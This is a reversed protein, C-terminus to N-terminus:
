NDGWVEWSDDKSQSKKGWISEQSNWDTDDDFMGKKAAEDDVVTNSIPLELMLPDKLLVVEVEPKIYKMKNM